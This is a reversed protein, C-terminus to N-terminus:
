ALNFHADTNSFGGLEEEVLNNFIERRVEKIPCRAYAYGLWRVVEVTQHYVQAMVWGIERKSAEGSLVRKVWPHQSLNLGRSAIADEMLEVLKQSSGITDGFKAVTAM